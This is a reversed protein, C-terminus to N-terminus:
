GKEVPLYVIFTSGKKPTSEVRMWGGHDRIIEKSIPLGLGTGNGATKTTYFSEFIRPFSGEPIGCGDDKISVAWVAIPIMSADEPPVANEEDIGLTVHGGSPTAQIANIILNALVQQIQNEDVRAYATRLDKRCELYIGAKVAVPNLLEAMQRVTLSLDQIKKEKAHVRAFDLIQRVTLTVKEAQEVIIRACDRAEDGEAEACQIMKARGTIVTLPTGVEHVVSSTLQGVTKLRDAHRLQELTELHAKTESEIRQVATKLKTAMTNMAESLESIEDRQKFALRSEFDGRGIKVAQQVLKRIPRGIFYLGLLITAAACILIATLTIVWSRVVASRIHESQSSLSESIEIFGAIKGKPSIPVYTDMRKRNSLDERVISVARGSLLRQRDVAPLDQLGGSVPDFPIWHVTVRSTQNGIKRILEMALSEGYSKWAEAIAAATARGMSLHDRRTDKEFTAFQRQVRLYSDLGLVVAIVLTVAIAIKIALKM